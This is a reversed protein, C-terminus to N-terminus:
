RVGDTAVDRARTVCAHEVLKNMKHFTAGDPRILVAVVIQGHTGLFGRREVIMAHTRDVVSQLEALVAEREHTAAVPIVTHIEDALPPFPFAHPQGEEEVIHQFLELLDCPPVPVGGEGFTALSLGIPEAV